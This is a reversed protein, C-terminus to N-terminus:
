VHRVSESEADVESVDLAHRSAKKDTLCIGLVVVVALVALLVWSWGNM